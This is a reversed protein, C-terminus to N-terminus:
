GLISRRRRWGGIRRFGYFRRSDGLRGSGGGFSGILKCPELSFNFAEDLGDVAVHFLIIGAFHQCAEIVLDVVITVSPFILGEDGFLQALVKRSEGGARKGDTFDGQLSRRGAGPFNGYGEVNM